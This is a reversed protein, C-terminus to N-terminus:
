IIKFLQKDSKNIKLIILFKNIEILNNQYFSNLPAAQRTRGGLLEGNM